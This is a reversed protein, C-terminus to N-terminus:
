SPNIRENERHHAQIERLALLLEEIADAFRRLSARKGESMQGMGAVMAGADLVDVLREVDVCLDHIPDVIVPTYTM